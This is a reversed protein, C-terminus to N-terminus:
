CCSKKSLPNIEGGFPTASRPPLSQGKGIVRLHVPAGVPVLGATRKGPEGPHLITSGYRAFSSVFLRAHDYDAFRINFRSKNIVGGVQTFLIPRCDNNDFWLRLEAFWDALKTDGPKEIQVVTM